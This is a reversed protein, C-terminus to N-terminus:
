EDREDRAPREQLDAQICRILLAKLKLRFRGFLVKMDTGSSSVSIYKQLPIVSKTQQTTEPGYRGAV